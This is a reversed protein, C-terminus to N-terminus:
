SGDVSHDYKDYHWMAKIWSGIPCGNSSFETEGKDLDKIQVQGWNKMNKTNSGHYHKWALVDESAFAGLIAITSFKM